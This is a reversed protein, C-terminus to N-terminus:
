ITKNNNLLTTARKIEWKGMTMFSQGCRVEMEAYKPKVWRHGCSRCNYGYIVFGNSEPVGVFDDHSILTKCHLCAWGGDEMPDTLSPCKLRTGHLTNSLAQNYITNKKKKKQEDTQQEFNLENQETNEV